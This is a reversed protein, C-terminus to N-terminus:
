KILNGSDQSQQALYRKYIMNTVRVAAKGVLNLQFIGEEPSNIEQFFMTMRLIAMRKMMIEREIGELHIGWEELTEMEPLSKAYFGHWLARRNGPKARDPKRSPMAENKRILRKRSHGVPAGNQALKRLFKRTEIENRRGTNTLITQISAGRELMRLAATNRLTHCTIMEANLGAWGAYLKLLYHVEDLSLPRDRRWDEAQSGAERVLPDKSPTFVYDVAAMNVLRGSATLWNEIATWTAAPLPSRECGGKRLIWAQGDVLGLDQWQLRRVEGAAIGTSLLTLFLAQDRQGIVSSERQITRLFKREDAPKLYTPREYSRVKPWEVQTFPNNRGALEEDVGGLICFDYFRSLNMLRLRITAPRLGREILGNRYKDIDERKIEWPLIHLTLNFERWAQHADVWVNKSYRNQLDELWAGYAKGWRELRERELTSDALGEWGAEKVLNM